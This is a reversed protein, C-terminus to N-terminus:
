PGVGPEPPEAHVTAGLTPLGLLRRAADYDDHTLAAAAAELEPLSGIRVGIPLRANPALSAWFLALLKVAPEPHAAYFAREWAGDALPDRWGSRHTLHYARADEVAVMRLGARCLRLALERHENIDIREDFGGCDLFAQRPASLNSGSAAAWLVTCGAHKNLAEIELAQLMRPGAGPYLGLEARRDIGAFDELVQRRTVLSGALEAASLRAIRGEEGERPAGTEPNKLFRTCRLHLLTGRGVLGDQAAHTRLHHAVFDPHALTDGDLFIVLDGSAARAGANSAGSRGRAIPHRVIRLPAQKAAEDLIAGTHDSSGDDVVVVECPASQRALSTLTLRLRDAEDKSRVIVSARV